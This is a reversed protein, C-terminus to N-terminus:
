RKQKKSTGRQKEVEIQNTDAKRKGDDKHNILADITDLAEQILQKEGEIVALAM